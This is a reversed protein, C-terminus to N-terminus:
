EEQYDSGSRTSQTCDASGGGDRGYIDQYYQINGADDPWASFYTTVVRVPSPPKRETRDDSRWFDQAQSTDIELAWAALELAKEVRICGHSVARDDNDFAGHDNTDHLYVSGGISLGIKVAGLANGKGPQQVFRGVSMGAAAAEEPEVMRGGSEILFNLRSFYEPNQKVKTRWNRADIISEPVTWTPNFRVFAAGTDLDPTSWGEDGIVVRCELEISGDRYAVLQQSPLDVVITKGPGPPRLRAARALTGRIAAAQKGCVRPLQARLIATAGGPDARAVAPLVMASAAALLFARRDM